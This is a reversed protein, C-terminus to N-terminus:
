AINEPLYGIFLRTLLEKNCTQYQSIQFIVIIILKNPWPM